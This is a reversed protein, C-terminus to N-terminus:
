KGSASKVTFATTIAPRGAFQLTVMVTNGPKIAPGADMCMLHYGGPAFALTGSAPVQLATVDGMSGMGGRNESRHLMLMGCASSEAGTLTVTKAGGNHLTFYGGSPVSPPLARIWANTVTIDDARAESVAVLALIAAIAIAHVAEWLGPARNRM